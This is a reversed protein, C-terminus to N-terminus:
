PFRGDNWTKVPIMAIPPIGWLEQMMDATKPATDCLFGCSVLLDPKPIYGLELLGVYMKVNACHAVAGAKAV